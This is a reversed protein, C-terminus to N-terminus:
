RRRAARVGESVARVNEIAAGVDGPGVDEGREIRDATERAARYAASLEDNEEGTLAMGSETLAQELFDCAEPLAGAPDEEFLQELESWRTEWEHLELGPENQSM